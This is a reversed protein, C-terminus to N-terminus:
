SLERVDRVVHAFAGVHRLPPIPLRTPNLIRHGCPQTPELGVEPVKRSAFNPQSGDIQRNIKADEGDGTSSSAKPMAQARCCGVEVWIV